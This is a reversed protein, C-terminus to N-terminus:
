VGTMPRKLGSLMATSFIDGEVSQIVTPQHNKHADRLDGVNLARKMGNMQLQKDMATLGNLSRDYGDNLNPLKQNDVAFAM